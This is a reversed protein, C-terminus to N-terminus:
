VHKERWALEDYKEEYIYTRARVPWDCYSAKIECLRRAGYVILCFDLDAHRDHGAKFHSGGTHKPEEGTVMSLSFGAISKQSLASAIPFISKERPTYIGQCM